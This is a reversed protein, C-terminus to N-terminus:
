APLYIEDDIMCRLASSNRIGRTTFIVPTGGLTPGSRPFMTLVVGSEEYTFEAGLKSCYTGDLSVRFTTNSPHLQRPSICSILSSSLYRGQVDVDGFRCQPGVSELGIDVRSVGLSGGSGPGIAPSSWIVAPKVSFLFPLAAGNM